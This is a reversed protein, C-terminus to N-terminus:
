RVLPPSRNVYRLGRHLVLVLGFALALCAWGLAEHYIGQTFRPNFEGLIGTATIRVVNLILAAPISLAVVALRAWTREELFYAYLVCFFALTILSRIGSCAEVISLRYHPLELLNGERIVSFGALALTKESLITAWSQLPATIEAYLLQPIPFTFLLLFLPFKLRLLAPLGGVLVICGILSALFAFRQLTASTGVSAIVGAAGAIALVLIGWMSPAAPQQLIEGRKSVAIYLAVLPAFLGHAMDESSFLIQATWRLAPFYVAILAVGLLGCLILAARNLYRAAPVSQFPSAQAEILM